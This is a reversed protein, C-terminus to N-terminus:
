TGGPTAEYSALYAAVARAYEAFVQRGAPGPAAAVARLVGEAMTFVMRAVRRREALPQRPLRAHLIDLLLAFGEAEFDGDTPLRPEPAGAALAIYAPHQTFFEAYPAFLEHVARELPLRAWEAAPRARLAGTIARLEDVYRATLATVFAAKDPFLHYLSGPTAGARRAIERVSAAALGHEAIVAAAAELLAAAPARRAGAAAPPRRDGGYGGPSGRPVASRRPIGGPIAPSADRTPRPHRTRAAPSSTAGSRQAAPSCLARAHVYESCANHTHAVM